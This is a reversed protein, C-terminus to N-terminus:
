FIFGCFRAISLVTCRDAPRGGKTGENFFTGKRPSKQLIVKSATAKLVEQPAGGSQCM